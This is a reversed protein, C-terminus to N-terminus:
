RLGTARSRETEASSIRRAADSGDQGPAESFTIVFSRGREVTQYRYPKGWPDLPLTLGKIYPGNWSALSQPPVILVNLGESDQPYRGTDIYFLEVASALTEAQIRATKVKSSTLYGLVRPGVLGMILAMISLVVIVEVLTFGEDTRGRRSKRKTEGM